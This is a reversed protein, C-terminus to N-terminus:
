APASHFRTAACGGVYDQSIKKANVEMQKHKTENEARTQRMQNLRTRLATMDEIAKVRRVADRM